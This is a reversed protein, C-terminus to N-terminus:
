VFSFNRAANVDAIRLDGQLLLSGQAGFTVLIGAESASFSVDALGDIGPLDVEIVDEGPTFDTIVDGGTLDGEELVFIDRGSWGTLTDAGPGGSLSDNGIMGNLEDDDENGTLTDDGESGVLTDNGQNGSILDNGENGKLYDNGGWGLLRDDGEGGYAHDDGKGGVLRDDGGLGELTDDGDGGELTDPGASGAIQAGGSEPPIVAVDSTVFTIEIVEFPDLTIPVTTGTVALDTLEARVDNENIYYRQGNVLLSDAEQFGEGPVYHVGDSSNSSLDAGIKVASASTYDPVLTSLDLELEITETARSAVYIVTSDESQWAHFTFSGDEISLQTGLLELGPLSSSMLDFTAGNITNLVRGQADTIVDETQKGALDTPTNHQVPWVHAADVGLENMNSTMEVMVSASRLGTETTDSTRVNWETIYLDLEKDFEEDWVAYDRNIFNMEGSTGEFETVQKDYYYHEVVGDIADRAGAGLQDIIARNADQVRELYPRDDISVHYESGAFPSAMQVLIAAQDGDAFGSDQMGQALAVAAVDAKSGYATEGMSWYENGIEFAEVVDSYDRMVTEAFGAIDGSLAEYEAVTYNKTPLVLTVQAGNERAWDLMDTVEQRLQWEGDVRQMQLVDLFGEGDVELDGSDGQGAPFRLHTIDLADAAVGFNDLPVGDDTNVSFVLNGGFYAGDLTQGTATAATVSIHTGDFAPPASAVPTLEGLNGLWGAPDGLAAADVGRIVALVVGDYILAAGSGDAAEAVTLNDYAEEASLLTGDARMLSILEPGGDNGTLEYTYLTLPTFADDGQPVVIDYFDNGAGGALHDGEDGFLIDDGANGVLTDGVTEAGDADVGSVFDDGAQGDLYDGGGRGILVDAGPGGFFDDREVTGVLLDDGEFTANLASSFNGIWITEYFLEEATYGEIVAVVEGNMYIGAGSGDPMDGIGAALTGDFFAARPIIEGEPTVFVVRDPVDQDTLRTFDLDTITVPETGEQGVPVIFLDAGGGGTLTDGDDGWLLDIGAGGDLSDPAGPMDDAMVIFDSGAGGEATDSGLADVILDHGGGGVLLDDGPGGDLTEDGNTGLLVDDGKTGLLLGEALDGALDPAEEDPVDESGSASATGGALSWLLVGLLLSSLYFM